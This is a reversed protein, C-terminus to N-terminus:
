RWRNHGVRKSGLQELRVELLAMLSNADDGDGPEPTPPDWGLGTCTGFACDRIEDDTLPRGGKIAHLMQVLGDLEQCGPSSKYYKEATQKM